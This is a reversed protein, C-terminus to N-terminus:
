DPALRTNQKSSTGQPVTSILGEGFGSLNRLNPKLAWQENADQFEDEELETLNRGVAFIPPTAPRRESITHSSQGKINSENLANQMPDISDPNATEYELIKLLKYVM